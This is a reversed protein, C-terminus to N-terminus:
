WIVIRNGEIRYRFEASISLAKMVTDISQNKVKLSIQKTLLSKNKFLITAKYYRELQHAINELTENRFIFKGTQWAKINAVNVLSQSFKGTSRNYSLQDGTVLMYTKIKAKTPTVGVKGSAVSVSLEKDVGSAQINFSTGLVQIDLKDTHVKFPRKPNHTVEFFAEGILFVERTKGSFSSPYKLRSKRNLTIKTGDGLTIVKIETTGTTMERLTTPPAWYHSKNNFYFLGAITSLILLSAAVSRIWVPFRIPKAIEIPFFHEKLDGQSLAQKAALRDPTLEGNVDLQILWRAILTKEEETVLGTQYKRFLEELHKRENQM